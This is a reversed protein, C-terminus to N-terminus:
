SRNATAVDGRRAYVVTQGRRVSPFALGAAKLLRVALGAGTTVPVAFYDVFEHAVAELGATEGIEILEGKSYERFHGPNEHDIRIREYPHLGVLLRVRKHLAVANPTQCLILGGSELFGRLYHLVLEPATHLHELVEAFVILGFRLTSEPSEHYQADNLDFVIHEAFESQMRDVQSGTEHGFRESESLPFGLTAVHQYHSLLMRSLHSRGIDLVRTKPDPKLDLCRQMVYQFRREHYRLYDHRADAAHELQLLRGIYSAESAGAPRRAAGMERVEEDSSVNRVPPQQKHTM